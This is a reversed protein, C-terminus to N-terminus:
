ASATKKQIEMLVEDVEEDEDRASIGESIAEMVLRKAELIDKPRLHLMADKEQITARPDHGMDRRILEGQTSLLELAYCTALFGEAGPQSIARMLGDPYREMADFHASANYVFDYKTFDVDGETNAACFLLWAMM